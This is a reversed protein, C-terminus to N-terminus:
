LMCQSYVKEYGDTMAEVTYKRSILQGSHAIMQRKPDTYIRTLGNSIGAEDPECCYGTVGDKVLDVSGGRNSALVPIGATMAEILTMPMGEYLSPLVFADADYYYDRANSLQGLQFIFSNAKLREIESAVDAFCEGDGIILLKTESYKKHFRVFSQVLVRQNKQPAARGITLFTFSDLLGPIKEIPKPNYNPIGNYVLPVKRDSLNYLDCISKRVTENIAVPVSRGSRFACRQIAQIRRPVEQNAINHITHVHPIKLGLNAFETYQMCYRHSHIVDPKLEIFLRRLKVIMSMDFGRKKGLFRVKVGSNELEDTISTRRDFLSVAFVEWGRHVLEISLYETMREAGAFLYDPIIQLIRGKYQKKIM